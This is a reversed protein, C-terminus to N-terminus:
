PLGPDKVWQALDPVLGVDEHISAPNMVWQAVLPAGFILIEKGKKTQAWLMHSTVGPLPNFGHQLLLYLSFAPYKVQQAM